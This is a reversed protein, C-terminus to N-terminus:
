GITCWASRCCCLIGRRFVKIQRLVAPALIDYDDNLVGLAGKELM